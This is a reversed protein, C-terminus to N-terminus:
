EDLNAHKIPSLVSNNWEGLTVKQGDYIMDVMGDRYEEPTVVYFLSEYIGQRQLKAMRHCGDELLYGNQFEIVVGPYSTDTSDILEECPPPYCIKDHRILIPERGDNVVKYCKPHKM